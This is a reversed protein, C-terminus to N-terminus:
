KKQRAKRKKKKGKSKKKEVVAGDYLIVQHESGDMSLLISPRRPRDVRLRQLDKVDTIDGEPLKEKDPEEFSDIKLHDIKQIKEAEQNEQNGPVM